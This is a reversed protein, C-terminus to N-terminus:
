KQMFYLIKDTVTDWNYQSLYWERKRIVNSKIRENKLLDIMKQALEDINDSDILYGTEGNEIFYPMEYKNRGIAPLGFSLAEIFVLGYAEFYSPMVFVDCINLYDAVKDQSLNGMFYIGEGKTESPQEYPGIVYLEIDPYLKKLKEFANCVLHGGKRYFDRGIFLFKNGEKKEYNCKSIDVNIGGGVAIVKDKDYGQKIYFQRLWESMTFIYCCNSTFREEKRARIRTALNCGSFLSWKYDEPDNEKLWKVFSASVDQYCCYKAYKGQIEDGFVFTYEGKHNLDWFYYRIYIYWRYTLYFDGRVILDVVKRIIRVIFPIYIDVENVICKKKLASLLGWCTGSWANEKGKLRRNSNWICIFNIKM